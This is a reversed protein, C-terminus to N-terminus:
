GEAVGALGEVVEALGLVGDELVPGFYVMQVVVGGGESGEGVRFADVAGKRTGLECVGDEVRNSDLICVRLVPRDAAAALTEPGQRQQQVLNIQRPAIWTINNLPSHRHTHIMHKYKPRHDGTRRQQLPQVIIIYTERRKEM